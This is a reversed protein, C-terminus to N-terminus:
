EPFLTLTQGPRIYKGTLTNWRRIDKVSVKFRRAIHSLSDGKKVRYAQPSASNDLSAILPGSLPGDADPEIWVTLKKGPRLHRKTSLHNWKALQLYGVGYRRSITWLSEGSRVTHTRRVRQGKSSPTERIAVAQKSLPILLRQGSRIRSSKLGNSQRLVSTSIGHRMAIQSLTDGPRVQYRTWRVREAPDLAALQQRFLAAKEVPILLRHPGDPGTAWRQWGPNLHRMENFPIDALRAALSVDLQGGIDVIEFYPRDAIKPLRFGYKAPQRMIEAIALLRPIYNQTEKPLHLSWYDLPQGHRRNRRLAKYLTGVGSNYAALALEWDGDYKKALMQLHDLAAWTSALIDRRGEYWWSQKVGHQRATSSVFQWIGAARSPSYAFPKFGSEIVPLLVFETPMDRKEIEELIFHLYPRGARLAQYLYEKHSKLWRLQRSVRSHRRTRLEFGARIRTWIEAPPHAKEATHPQPEPPTETLTTISSEATEGAKEKEAALM